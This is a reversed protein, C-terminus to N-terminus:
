SSAIITVDNVNTGTPGTMVLDGLREFYRYSNNNELFKKPDMGAKHGRAITTGDSIAGAANTPGDVGDTALSAVVASDLGSIALASSLVLEQNRGGRGKGKLTVTTEGGITLAAPPSFPLGNHRIGTLMSGLISGAERAEGIMRTTLVQSRYGNQKLHSAAAKCSVLNDGIIVNRVNRFVSDGPKPTDAIVGRVGENIIKRVRNSVKSQLNYESLVQKADQYSTPDPATPGSGIASLDDGIVDSIILTLVSAPYLIKAFRGGKVQSLHKRITNIQQINAGSGLLQAVLKREVNLSLGPLPYEFLSSAGGSLMVLVLDTKSAGKVLELMRSAARVNKETPIPHSGSRYEIRRGRPRRRLYDPVIVLGKSIRDGLIKEMREAMGGSAKGAGIIFIRRYRNLAYSAGDVSLVNDQIRVHRSIIRTPNATELAKDLSALVDRHLKSLPRNSSVKM